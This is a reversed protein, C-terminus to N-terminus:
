VMGKCAGSKCSGSCDAAETNEAFRDTKLENAPTMLIDAIENEIQQNNM